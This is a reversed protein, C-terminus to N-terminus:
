ADVPDATTRNRHRSGARRCGTRLSCDEAQTRGGAFADPMELRHLVVHPVTIERRRRRQDGDAVGARADVDDRLGRLVAAEVDSSRSVPSGSNGM